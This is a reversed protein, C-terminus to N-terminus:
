VPVGNNVTQDKPPVAGAPPECYRVGVRRVADLFRVGDSLRCEVDAVIAETARALPMGARKAAREIESPDLIVTVEFTAKV